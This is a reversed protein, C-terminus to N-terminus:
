LRAHANNFVYAHLIEFAVGFELEIELGVYVENESSISTLDITMKTLIYSLASKILLDFTKKDPPLLATMSAIMIARPPLDVNVPRLALTLDNIFVPQSYAWSAPTDVSAV